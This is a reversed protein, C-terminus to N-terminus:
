QYPPSAVNESDSRMARVIMTRKDVTQDDVVRHAARPMVGTEIQTGALGQRRRGQGIADQDTACRSPLIQTLLFCLGGCGFRRALAAPLTDPFITM